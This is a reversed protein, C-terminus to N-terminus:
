QADIQSQRPHLVEAIPPRVDRPPPSIRVVKRPPRNGRPRLLGPVNRIQPLPIAIVLKTRTSPINPACDRRRSARRAAVLQRPIAVVVLALRHLSTLVGDTDLSCALVAPIIDLPTCQVEVALRLLDLQRCRVFQSGDRNVVVLTLGVWFRCAPIRCFTAFAARHSCM